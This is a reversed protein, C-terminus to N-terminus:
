RSLSEHKTEQTKLRPHSVLLHLVLAQAAEVHPTVAAPNVTPVLLCAEAQRATAGGDKGVIGLVKAGVRRAYAAARAINESLGLDPNGGGVSLVFVADKEGLRSARLGDAFVSAWGDDNTRASLEAVNDTPAYAEFGGIKRFDAAAHSANAAGGGVGLFFVRGGGQRVGALLGVMKDIMGRDLREVVTQAEDLFKQIHEM